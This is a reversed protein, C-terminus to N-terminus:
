SFHCCHQNKLSTSTPSVRLALFHALLEEFGKFWVIIIIVGNMMAAGGTLGVGKFM